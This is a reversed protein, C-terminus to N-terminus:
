LVDMVFPLAPLMAQKDYVSCGYIGEKPMCPAQYWNYRIQAPQTVNSQAFSVSVNFLGSLQVNEGTAEVYAWEATAADLVEFGIRRKLALGAENVNRLNLRVVGAAKDVMASECVPGLWYRESAGYVVNMAADALRRAVQQKLRPHIDGFPSTADGLDIAIALFTNRMRENPVFGFHASQGSRVTAVEVCGSGPACTGNAGDGWTSLHVLGFPLDADTDSFLNWKARWDDIMAAFACAYSAAYPANADSEGQYWLAAKVTM